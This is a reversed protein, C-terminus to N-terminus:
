AFLSVCLSLISSMDEEELVLVVVAGLIETVAGLSLLPLLDLELLLADDDEDPFV